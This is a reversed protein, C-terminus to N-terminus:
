RRKRGASRASAKAATTRSTKGSVRAKNSGAKRTQTLSKGTTKRASVKKASKRTATHKESKPTAAKKTSKRPATQKGDTSAAVKKTVKSAAAQKDGTKAFVKQTNKQASASQVPASKSRNGSAGADAEEPKATAKTEKRMMPRPRAPKATTNAPLGAKERKASTGTRGAAIDAPEPVVDTARRSQLMEKIVEPARGHTPKFKRNLAGADAEPVPESENEKSSSEAQRQKNNHGEAKGAQIPTAEKVPEPVTEGHEALLQRIREAKAQDPPLDSANTQGGAWDGHEQLSVAGQNRHFDFANLHGGRVKYRDINRTADKPM